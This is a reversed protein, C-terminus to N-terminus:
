ASAKKTRAGSASAARHRAQKYVIRMVPDEIRDADDNSATESHSQASQPPRRPAATAIRFELDTIIGGGLVETLKALIDFRLHFLQKQWIGDDAEIVLSGRVLAKPSAHLAIRKGVATPWAAFALQDPSIADSLRLKALAKGAREMRISSLKLM